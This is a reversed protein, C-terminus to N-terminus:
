AKKTQKYPMFVTVTTGEGHRNQITMKGSLLQARERMGMLGLTDPDRLQDLRIGKGNDSVSLRIGNTQPAVRVNVRTAEAHRLVNTLAEQFIRFLATARASELHVEQKPLTLTYRLGTRRRVDQLQWEIAAILGLHDLIHPRLANGIRQIADFLTDLQTTM